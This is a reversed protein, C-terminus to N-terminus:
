WNKLWFMHIWYFHVLWHAANKAGPTQMKSVVTQPEILRLNCYLFMVIWWKDVHGPKLSTASKLRSQTCCFIEAGPKQPEKLLHTIWVRIHAKWAHVVWESQILLENGQIFVGDGQILIMEKYSFSNEKYAYRMEQYSYSMGKYSFVEHIVWKRTHIRWKKTNLILLLLDHVKGKCSFSTHIVQKRSHIYSENRRMHFNRKRTRFSTYIVRNRTHVASIFLENGQIFFGTEKYTCSM